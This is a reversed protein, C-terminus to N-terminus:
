PLKKLKVQMSDAARREGDTARPNLPDATGYAEIAAAKNGAAEHALGLRYFARWSRPFLTTALTHIAVADEVRKKQLRDDGLNGIPGETIDVGALKGEDRLKLMLATVERASRGAEISDRLITALNIRKASTLILKDGQPSVVYASANRLDPHDFTAVLRWVPDSVTRAYLGSGKAMLITNRGPVWAHATRGVLTPGLDQTRGTALDVRRLTHKADASDIRVYTLAREGPIRQAPLAPIGSDVDVIAGTKADFLGLTFTKSKPRTLAYSGGDLPTYYGTTDPGPLVGRSPTGDPSYVWVGYEKFLTAPVWRVAVYEGSPLVSPSNENEPTHTVRTEARTALDMRYIDSRANAGTDRTASYVIAKGDPTFAPQSNSGNDNTLKVPTGARLRDGEWKLEVLWLNLPNPSQAELRSAALLLAALVSKHM